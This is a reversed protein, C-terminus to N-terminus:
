LVTYNRELMQGDGSGRSAAKRALSCLSNHERDTGWAKCPCLWPYWSCPQPSLFCIGSWLPLIPSGDSPVFMDCMCTAQRVIQPIRVSVCWSVRGITVFSSWLDCLIGSRFMRASMIAASPPLHGAGRGFLLSSEIDVGNGSTANPSLDDRFRCPRWGFLSVALM